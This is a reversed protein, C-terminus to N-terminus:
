VEPRSVYAKGRPAPSLPLRPPRVRAGVCRVMRVRAVVVRVCVCLRVGRVSAACVCASDRGGAYLRPVCVCGWRVGTGTHGCTRAGSAYSVVAGGVGAGGAGRRAATTSLRPHAPRVSFSPREAGAGRRAAAGAGGGGRRAGGPAGRAAGARGGGGAPGPLPPARRRPPLSEPGGAPPGRDRSDNGLARARGGAARAGRGGRAGSSPSPARARRGRGAARAAGLPRASEKVSAGRRVGESGRERAGRRRRVREAGVDPRGQFTPRRRRRRRGLLPPPRYGTPGRTKRRRAGGGARAAPVRGARRQRASWEGAGGARGSAARRGASTPAASTPRPVRRGPGGSGRRAAGPGRRTRAPCPRRQRGAGFDSRPAPDARRLASAQPTSATQFLAEPGLGPSGRGRPRPFTRQGARGSRHRCQPRGCSRPRPAGRRGFHAGRGASDGVCRSARRARGAGGPGCYGKLWSETLRLRRPPQRVARRAGLGM